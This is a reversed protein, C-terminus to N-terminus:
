TSLSDSIYTSTELVHGGGGADLCAETALLQGPPHSGKAMAHLGWLISPDTGKMM